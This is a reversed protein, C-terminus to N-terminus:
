GGDEGTVIMNPWRGEMYGDGYQRDIFAEFANAPEPRAPRSDYRLMAAATLVANCAMVLVVAWTLLKGALAPLSEIGRSMPPYIMKIWVVALVGWFFCFLVNTRGGINLPMDSYDWFVTGFVLETFVSCMYEYAGGIVFGAAFVYRDNREALRQLTVTLVVAGLGWVFSFPGYLVSSRNMWQGDVLGCWFTEIIDGLLASILFVWVLKDLCLGKAFVASKAGGDAAQIEPYAKTLRKWVANYIWAALKGQSAGEQRRQYRSADGTRVAYSVTAFDLGALALAAWVLVRKLLGPMLVVGALLLPHIILYVTYYAAAVALSALLGRGTGALLRSREAQWQLSPGVQRFFHNAIGEVVASVTIVALFSLVHRGALTPLVLLLLDFTFGYCLVLPLSLIGRNCFRRRTVAYWGAEAAWGLFSYILLFLGLDYLSYM